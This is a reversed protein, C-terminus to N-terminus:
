TIPSCSNLAPTPNHNVTRVRNPFGGGGRGKWGHTRICISGVGPSDISPDELFFPKGVCPGAEIENTGDIAEKIDM